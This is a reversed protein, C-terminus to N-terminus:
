GFRRRATVIAAMISLALAVVLASSSISIWGMAALIVAVITTLIAAAESTLESFCGAVFIILLAPIFWATSINITGLFDLSFPDTPKTYEGLLYQKHSFDGFSQHDVAVEVQYSTTNYADAWSYSFTQYEPGYFMRTFAVTGDSANTITVIVSNTKNTIDGYNIIITGNPTAFTRTAYAHVYQYLELTQAPFATPPITLTISTSVTNINGFVYTSGDSASEVTITYLTYLPLETIVDGLADIPRKEVPYDLALNDGMLSKVTLYAGESLDLSQYNFINFAVQTQDKDFVIYYNTM